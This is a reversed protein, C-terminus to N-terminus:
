NLWAAVTALGCIDAAQSWLLGVYYLWMTMLSTDPVTNLVAMSCMNYVPLSSTVKIILHM